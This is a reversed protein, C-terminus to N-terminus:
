KVSSGSFKFDPLPCVRCGLSNWPGQVKLDYDGFIPPGWYLGWISYDKTHPGGTFPVGLKPFGGLYSIHAVSLIQGVLSGNLTSMPDLKHKLITGLITRVLSGMNLLNPLLNQTYSM